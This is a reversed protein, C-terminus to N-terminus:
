NLDEQYAVHKLGNGRDIVYGVCVQEGKILTQVYETFAGTLKPFKTLNDLLGRGFAYINVDRYFPRTNLVLQADNVPWVLEKVKKEEVVLLGHSDAFSIRSTGTLTLDNKQRIHETLVNDYVGSSPVVDGPLGVCLGSVAYVMSKYAGLTGAGAKHPIYDLKINKYYGFRHQLFDKVEDGRYSVAIHADISGFARLLENIIIALIPEGRYPILCKQNHDTMSGMRAGRGGALVIVEQTSFM